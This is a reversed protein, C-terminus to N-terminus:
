RKGVTRAAEASAPDCLYKDGKVCPMKVVV